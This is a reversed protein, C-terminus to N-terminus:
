CLKSKATGPDGVLLTDIRGGSKKGRDIGGVISRLLGRKVDDHGIINPAFMSTIRDLLRPLKAFVEFCKIDIDTVLVEKRNLYEISTAHLVTYKKNSRGNKKDEIRINGCIKVIEGAVVNKVMEDYLVVDLRENEDLNETDELQISKADKYEPRGEVPNAVQLVYMESVSVITGLVAIKGGHIRKAALVSLPKTDEQNEFGSGYIGFIDEKM